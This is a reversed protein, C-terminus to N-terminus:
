GEESINQNSMQYIQAERMMPIDHYQEDVLFGNLRVQEAFIMDGHKEGQMTITYRFPGKSFTGELILKGKERSARFKASDDLLNENNEIYEFRYDRHFVFYSKTEDGPLIFGWAGYVDANGSAPLPCLALFFIFMCKAALAKFYAMCM